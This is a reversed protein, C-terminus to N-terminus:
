RRVLIFSLATISYLPHSIIASFVGVFLRACRVADSRLRAVAALKPRSAPANAITATEDCCAPCAAVDAVVTAVVFVCLSAASAIVCGAVCPAAVVAAALAVCVACGVLV